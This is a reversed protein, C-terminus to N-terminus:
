NNALAKVRLESIQERMDKIIDRLTAITENLEKVQEANSNISNVRNLMEGEGIVLWTINLEPYRKAIKAINDSRMGKTIKSISGNSLGVAEEFANQGMGLYALFELLREKM